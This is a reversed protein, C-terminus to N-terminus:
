DNKIYGAAPRCVYKMLPRHKDAEERLIEADVECAEYTKYYNSNPYTVDIYASGSWMLVNMVYVLIM